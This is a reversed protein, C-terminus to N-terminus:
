LCHLLYFDYYKTIRYVTCKINNNVEFGFLVCFLFVCFYTIIILTVFFVICDVVFFFLAHDIFILFTCCFILLLNIFLLYLLSLSCIQSNIMNKSLNYLCNKLKKLKQCIIM